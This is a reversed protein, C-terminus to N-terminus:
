AGLRIDPAVGIDTLFGEDHTTLIVQRSRSIEGLLEWSARARDRDLHAFPEDIVLPPLVGIGALFDAAGLRVALYLAHLQGFSLPPSCLPVLRGGLRVRADELTEEVELPGLRDGGLSGLHHSVRDALRDQDRDRFADYADAILGHASEMVRARRELAVRRPRLAELDRELAEVSEPASGQEMLAQSTEQLSEQVEVREARRTRLARAVDDETPAVDAPLDLSLDGIRELESRGSAFRERLRESALDLRALVTDAADDGTAEPLPGEMEADRLASRAGRVADAVARRAEELRDVAAQQRQYRALHVGRTRPGISGAEPASSLVEEAERKVTARRKRATILLGGWVAAGLAALVAMGEAWITLGLYAVVGAAVLLAGATAAVAPAPYRRLEDLDRWRVEARALLEPFDPPYRGPALAREREARAEELEGAAERLDTAATGLRELLRQLGRTTIEAADTRALASRAEELREIEGDLVALRDAIRERELALPGRRSRAERAVELRDELAAIEEDLKELQRPNIAPAATPHLPRRTVERHSQAIAHRAAEVRAHGGAAVRLLHEGLESEALEGQRVFLTRRYADLEHLGLLEDLIQRYQRAEQNRAAPNGDGEFREVGGDLALVRVRGTRFNRRIEYRGDHATLRVRGGMGEVEWPRRLEAHDADEGKRRDFGFLIRFLGDVLTTKGSGNPGAVVVPRPDAPFSWADDHCGYRLAVQDFRLRRM